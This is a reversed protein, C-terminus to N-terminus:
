IVDYEILIDSGITQITQNALKYAQSPNEVSIGSVPTYKGNGGFIKPAIYVQIHNVIGAALASQNLTGGGELLIGDIKREGLHIMLDQLDVKGDKEKVRVIEVGAQCLAEQKEADDSITAVIVPIEKATRVINSDLPMRLHSDCIIRVPNRGEPLRCTLNPNDQLVTQIGAMIGTLENRTEQVRQRAETGTIWKSEGNDCAIKGDATMAYKMVVYPTKHTIYHFFVPNLADCEEKLVHTEVEIGAERLISIGKGAVLANPDDSGIYVKQIGHEIIAQTCPPQKGYHCCPELTVYMEAGKTDQTTNAFAHREAHLDGYKAHYGEGIIKGDKVIVAGVLPNPNVKGKGKKALAIARLM